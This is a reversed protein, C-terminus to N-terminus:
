SANLVQTFYSIKQDMNQYSRSCLPLLFTACSAINKVKQDWNKKKAPYWKSKLNATALRFGGRLLYIKMHVTFKIPDESSYAGWLVIYLM